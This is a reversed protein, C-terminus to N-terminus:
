TKGVSMLIFRSFNCLRRSDTELKMLRTSRVEEFENKFALSTVVNRFDTWCFKLVACKCSLEHFSFSAVQRNYFFNVHWYRLSRHIIIYVWTCKVLRALWPFWEYWVLSGCILKFPSTLWHFTWPLSTRSRHPTAWIEWNCSYLINLWWQM